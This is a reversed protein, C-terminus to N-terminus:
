NNSEDDKKRQDVRLQLDFKKEQLTTDGWIRRPNTCLMCHPRGCNMSHHKSYRHYERPTIGHAKAIKVQKIAASRKKSIRRSHKIKDEDRSM